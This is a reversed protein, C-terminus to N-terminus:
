ARAPAAANAEAPNCEPNGSLTWARPPFSGYTVKYQWAAWGPKHGRKGALELLRQYEKKKREIDNMDRLEPMPELFLEEYQKSAWYDSFGRERAATLLRAAEAAKAEAPTAAGAYVERLEANYIRVPKKEAAQPEIVAFGCRPCQGPKDWCYGCSQCVKVAPMGKKLPMGDLSYERDQTPIGHDHTVGPLDILLADTKGACPRLIRGATQLLGSAHGFSRALIAISARPVDVGETLAYVNWLIRVRGHELDRIAARRVERDTNADVCASPIGAATFEAALKQAEEITRAYGFGSRGEGREQYAKLPTVAIGRDLRSDPRLVRLPVLHGAAILESYHAAVVMASFVDGLPAGTAREPTATLGLLYAHPWRDVVSRWEPATSHACEDFVVVDFHEWHDRAHLTQVSGVQLAAGPDSPEGAAIVGVRGFKATLRKTSQDILDKTHTLWLCRKGARMPSELIAAGMETKGSGTPAVLCVRLRDMGWHTLV